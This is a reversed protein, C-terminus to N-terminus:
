VAAPAADSSQTVATPALEIDTPPEFLRWMLLGWMVVCTLPKLWNETWRYAWGDCLLMFSMVYLWMAPRPRNLVVVLVAAPFAVIPALMVYSNSETRPNFLMLFVAAFGLLYYLRVSESRRWSAQLCLLLIVGAALLSMVQFASQSMKWGMHWFLGRINCYPNPPESSVKLVDHYKRFATIVYDAHQTAFPCFAVLILGFVLRPILPRYVAASLLLMVIMIPKIVVGAVLWLTARWWNRQYLEAATQLMLGAIHLNAQGNRLSAIGQPMAAATMLAFVALYNRPALIRSVRWVGTSYLIWALARWALGGYLLGMLYFPTYLIAFQPFYLFGDISHNRGYVDMGAWWDHSANAYVHCDEHADPKHAVLIAVGTFFILWGIWAATALKREILPNQLDSQM